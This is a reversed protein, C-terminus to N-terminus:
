RRGTLQRGIIQRMIESSGGYIRQVRADLYARAVPYELMYGYGGHLQLCEDIVRGQVESAWLKAEAADVPDLDGENYALIAKDLFARMVDLETKADALKFRTNQFESIPQGFASREKTYAVTAKLIADSFAVANAAIALRELPLHTMLQAFGGGEEGLVNSDPVFVDEFFLEATDQAHLGVKKLQAGRSFGEMDREVVLLSFTARGDCEGTRAVTIVLDAHLGNTILTKSGSLLWGGEVRKATSRIGRLDSGAAPETMAIAAILEGSSMRPLWRWKQEETGLAVIYPSAIDDQLSFGQALSGSSAAALEEVVVNRYRYDDHMGAGGFEVPIYLGIIGQRGAARWASRDILGEEDWRATHPAVERQVFETVVSRFQEHDDTYLGRKM